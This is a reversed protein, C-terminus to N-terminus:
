KMRSLANIVDNVNSYVGEPLTILLEEAKARREETADFLKWGQDRILGERTAPFKADEGLVSALSGLGTSKTVMPFKGTRGYAVLRAADSYMKAGHFAVYARSHSSSVDRIMKLEGDDPQYINHEGRGFIRTYLTGGRGESEYAPREGKLLDVCHIIGRDQMIRALDGPLKGEACGRVELALLTPGADLSAFFSGIRKVADARDIRFSPPAQFHLVDANLARCVDLSGKLALETEPSFSFLEGSSHTIARNARVAFRFAPPVAKRWRGAAKPDPLEYFTSNVEVFGFVKSYAKLPSMGPVSFYAWGGAGIYLETM